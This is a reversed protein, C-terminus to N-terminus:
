GPPWGLMRGALVHLHLHAVTQGGDEKCNIVFRAGNQECGLKVALAQGTFLLKGLLNVDSQSAEMISNIHKKPIVLFHVPAQPNLDHFAVVDEDEYIKKSPITGDAIKCFICDM